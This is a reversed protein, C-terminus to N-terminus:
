WLMSCSYIESRVHGQEIHEDSLM